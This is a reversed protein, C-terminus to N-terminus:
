KMCRTRLVQDHGEHHARVRTQIRVARQQQQIIVEYRADCLHGHRVSPAHARTHM